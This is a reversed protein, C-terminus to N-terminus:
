KVDEPPVSFRVGRQNNVATTDPIDLQDLPIKKPGPDDLVWLMQSVIAYNQIQEDHKDKDKFVLITTPQQELVPAPVSFPASASRLQQDRLAEIENTLRDIRHNLVELNPDYQPAHAASPPPTQQPEDNIDQYADFPSDYLYPYPSAFGFPLFVRHRDFERRHSFRRNSFRHAGFDITSGRPLPVFSHSSSPGSSTFGGHMQATAVIPLALLVIAALQRLRHM